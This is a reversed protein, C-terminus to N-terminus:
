PTFKRASLWDRGFGLRVSGLPIFSGLTDIFHQQWDDRDSNALEFLIEKDSIFRGRSQFDGSSSILLSRSLLDNVSGDIVVDMMQRQSLAAGSPIMVRRGLLTTASGQAALEGELQKQWAAIAPFKEETQRLLEVVMESEIAYKQQLSKSSRHRLSSDLLDRGLRKDRPSVEAMPRDLLMSAVVRWPDSTQLSELIGKEQSLQGIVTLTLESFVVNALCRGDDAAVVARRLQRCHHNQTPMATAMAEGHQIAGSPSFDRYSNPSLQLTTVSDAIGSIVRQIDSNQLYNYVSREHLILSLAGHENDNLLQLAEDDSRPGQPNYLKPQIKQRNFLFNCVDSHRRPQLTERWNSCSPRCTPRNSASIMTRSLSRRGM